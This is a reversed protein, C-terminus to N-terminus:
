VSTDPEVVDGLGWGALNVVHRMLECVPEEEWNRQRGALGRWDSKM